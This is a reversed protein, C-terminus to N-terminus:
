VINVKNFGMLLYNLFLEGGARNWAGLEIIGDHSEKFPESYAYPWQKIQKPVSEFLALLFYVYQINFQMMAWTKNSVNQLM